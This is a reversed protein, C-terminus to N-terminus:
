RPAILLNAGLTTAVASTGAAVASCAAISYVIPASGGAGRASHRAPASM